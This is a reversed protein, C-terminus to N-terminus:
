IGDVTADWVSTNGAEFGDAFFATLGPTVSACLSTPSMCADSPGFAAVVYSYERGNQLGTDAFTLNTTEGVIAKGFDCQFEGDTRFVKYRTANPVAAWSLNAGMDNSSAAAVPATVPSGACGSDQVTPTSCAIDHRDFADFIAQMHPTGDTLDGNDDDAVLFQQYGSSASCGGETGNSTSYWSSVNDAGLYTLRTAVELATNTDMRYRAPLDRTYLDWVSEGTLMGRCHVSGGCNALVWAVDHPTQSNHRMWDIDRAANCGFAPTCPDGFGSCTSGLAGRGPCSSNIRLASYVDAIGEGPSSVSGNTGNDDMGHGWEHDVVGALEGLNACAGAQLYFIVGSGTWGANCFVSNNVRAPLQSAVWGNSPLQGRGIEQLRNLEYFVTRAAHTNGASAGPPTTCDTGGSIGLDLNTDASSESVTGCGDSIALYPGTLDTTITGTAVVNGGADTTSTGGSHTVDAFPMPYGAIEIGDPAQGDNSIPFVGGQVNRAGGRAHDDHDQIDYHWTDVFSLIEGSHADVAAEYGGPIGDFDMSFIWALRHEYGEGDDFEAEVDQDVALPLIELHPTKSMRSPVFPALYRLTSDLALSETLTPETDVEVDGWRDTGFLILKGEKIAGNIGASRVPTSGIRRKGHIQVLAGGSHVGVNLIVERPDIRLATKNANLFAMFQEEAEEGTVQSTALSFSALSSSAQGSTGLLPESLWLTAWRGGRRDLLAHSPDLGLAALDDQAPLRTAAKTNGAPTLAADVDGGQLSLIKNALPSGGDPGLYAAVPLSLALATMTVVFRISLSPRDSRM